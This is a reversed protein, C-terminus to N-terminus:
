RKQPSGELAALQQYVVRSIALLQGKDLRGAIAYGCNDDIWYFVGVGDEQAYRFATEHSFEGDRRVLLSIRRKDANGYMFLGGRRPLCGGRCRNPLGHTSLTACCGTKGASRRSARPWRRSAPLRKGSKVLGSRQWNAM